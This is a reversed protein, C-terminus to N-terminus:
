TLPEGSPAWINGNHFYMMGRRGRTTPVTDYGWDGTSPKLSYIGEFNSDWIHLWGTADNYHATLVESIAPQKLSGPGLGSPVTYDAFLGTTVDAIRVTLSGTVSAVKTGGVHILGNTNQVGWGAGAIDRSISRNAIDYVRVNSASTKAAIFDGVRVPHYMTADGSITFPDTTDDSLDREVWGITSSTQQWIKTGGVPVAFNYVNSSSPKSIVGSPSQPDIGRMTADNYNVVWAIGDVVFVSMVSGAVGGGTPLGTFIRSQGTSLDTASYTGHSPLTAAVNADQYRNVTIAVDGILVGITPVRPAVLPVHEVGTIPM